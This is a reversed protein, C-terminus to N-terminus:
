DSHSLVTTMRHFRTEGEDMVGTEVAVDRVTRQVQTTNM